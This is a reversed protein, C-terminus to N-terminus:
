NPRSTVAASGDFEIGPDGGLLIRGLEGYLPHAVWRHNACAHSDRLKRELPSDLRMATTGAANHVLDVAELCANAAFVCALRANQTTAASPVDRGAWLEVEVDNMADMLYARAARVTGEAQGFRQQAVPRDKLLVTSMLPTKHAALERFATLTGRAVGLAVAAKNYALRLPVPMRYVPNDYNPPLSWLQVDAYKAPVYANDALVDHSGSGRLGAMDWTDLIEYESRNLFFMRVVPGGNSDRQLEDGVFVPAAMFCWEANHCGSIFSAQGSVHYGGDADRVARGPRTGPGGGGCMIVRQNGGYVEKVLEPDMGGVAMANIESGLMVNWGVSADIASLAEVVAITEMSSANEGGVEHPLTFRFMGADILADVTQQPLRRLQQAEDGGQRIVDTLGAVRDLASM